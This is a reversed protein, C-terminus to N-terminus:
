GLVLEVKTMKISEPITKLKTDKGFVFESVSSSETHDLILFDSSEAMRDVFANKGGRADVYSMVQGRNVVALSSLAKGNDSFIVSVYAEELVDMSEGESYLTVSIEFAKALEVLGYAIDYEEQTKPYPLYLERVLSNEFFRRLPKGMGDRYDTVIYGSIETATNDAAIGELSDLFSYSRASLDCIVASGGESLVIAGSNGESYYTIKVKGASMANYVGLCICFALVAAVPPLMITWKHKLDVLLMIVIAVSMATIIIGAFPYRLSIVAGPLSSFERCLWIISQATLSLLKVSVYGVLPIKGFLAAIPIIVIFLESIPSLIINSLLSVLSIEGFVLWVVICIFINCIFTLLIALLIKKFVLKLIDIM